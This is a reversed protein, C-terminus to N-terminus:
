WHGHYKQWEKEAFKICESLSSSTFAVEEPKTGHIYNRAWGIYYRYVEFKGTKLNKRLSLRHNKGKEKPVWGYVDIELLSYDQNTPDPISFEEEEANIDIGLLKTQKGTKPMKREFESLKKVLENM